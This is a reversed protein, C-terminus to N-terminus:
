VRYGRERAAATHLACREALGLRLAVAIKECMDATAERRGTVLRAIGVRNIGLRAALATQTVAREALLQRLLPGLGLPADALMAAAVIQGCAPCWDFRGFEDTVLRHSAAGCHRCPISVYHM